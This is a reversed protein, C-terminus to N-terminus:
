PALEGRPASVSRTWVALRDFLQHRAAFLFHAHGTEPLVQLEIDRSATFAAPIQQPPGAMDRDGVAIFVPVDILAAAPAVNGPLMSHYAPLPLLPEDSAAKLAAIGRPEATSGGFIGKAQPDRQVKPYPERFMRRALAPLQERLQGPDKALGAQAPPTYDPLGRTSFGLLAIAAHTKYRAQQLLSLMAGMSHGVGISRLQPIKERLGALVQRLAEDNAQALLETDLLYGDAPRTSDGIGLHDMTLVHFGRKSMQRAFSFSTDGDDPMLDFYGRNMGGGPLCVLLIPEATDTSPEFLTAAIQLPGENPLTLQLPLHLTM